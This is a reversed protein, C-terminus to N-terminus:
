KAAGWKGLDSRHNKIQETRGAQSWNQPIYKISKIRFIKAPVDLHVAVAAAIAALVEGGNGTGTGPAFAGSDDREEVKEEGPAPNQKVANAAMKKEEKYFAMRILDMAFSLLVLVSFVVTMAIVTIVLAQSLTLHEGFL